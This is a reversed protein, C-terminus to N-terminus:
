GCRCISYWRSIRVPDLGSPKISGRPETARPTWSSAPVASLRLRVRRAIWPIPWCCPAGNLRGRDFAPRAIVCNPGHHSATLKM